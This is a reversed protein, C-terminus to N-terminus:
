DEVINNIDIEESGSFYLESPKKEGLTITVTPEKESHTEQESQGGEGPEGASKGQGSQGAPGGHGSQTVQEAQEGEGPKEAKEEDERLTTLGAEREVKKTEPKMGLLEEQTEIIATLRSILYIKREELEAIEKQLELTKDATGAVLGAAEAEANKIIEEAELAAKQLTRETAEQTSILAKQLSDELNKYREIEFNLVEITKQLRENEKIATELEAAVKELFDGVEKPDFGRVSKSFEQRKINVPTLKMNVEKVM